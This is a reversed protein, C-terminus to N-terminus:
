RYSETAAIQAVDVSEQRAVQIGAIARNMQPNYRRPFAPPRDRSDEHQPSVLSRSKESISAGHIRRRVADSSRVPVRAVEQQAEMTMVIHPVTRRPQIGTHNGLRRPLAQFEDNAIRHAPF